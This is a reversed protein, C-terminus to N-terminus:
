HINKKIAKCKLGKNAKNAIKIRIPITTCQIWKYDFLEDRKRKTNWGLNTKMKPGKYLLFPPVINSYIVQHTYDGWFASTHYNINSM